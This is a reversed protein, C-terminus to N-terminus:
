AGANSNPGPCKSPNYANTWWTSGVVSGTKINGLQELRSVWGAAGDPSICLNKPFKPVVMDRADVGTVKSVIAKAQDPSQETFNAADVLGAIFARVNAGNEQLYKPTFVYAGSFSSSPQYVENDTFLVRIKDGAKKLCSPYYLNSIGVLDVQHADVMSQCMVNYPVVTKHVDSASLGCSAVYADVVSDLFSGANPIGIRKGKLDKCSHIDSDSLVYFRSDDPGGAGSQNSTAVATLKGGKSVIQLTSSVGFSPGTAVQGALIAQAGAVGLQTADIFKVNLNYKKFYGKAQAIQELAFYPVGLVKMTAAKPLTASGTTSAAATAASSQSSATTDSSSSSGCGSVGAGLALTCSGVALLGVYKKTIM